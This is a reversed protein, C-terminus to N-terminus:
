PAEAEYSRYLCAAALAGLLHWAAHGRILSQPNCVLRRLDIFWIGFALAMLFAAAALWSRGARSSRWEVALAWALLVGFVIRRLSPTAVQAAMLLGNAVVFGLVSVLPPVGFRPGLRHLLIFTAVLYMGSVDFVQGIFTLSAHYFASGLGVLVLAGLFLGAEAGALVIRASGRRRSLRAAVWLAVAVFALSSWTNVPQRILSERLGECFCDDPLCTAPRWSAWTSSAALAPEVM